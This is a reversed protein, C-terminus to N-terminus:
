SFFRAQHCFKQFIEIKTLIKPFDQNKKDSNQILRSKTWFKKFEQNRNFIIQLGRM